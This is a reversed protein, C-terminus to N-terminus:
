DTRKSEVPLKALLTTGEGPSSVVALAGGVLEARERMLQIGFHTTPDVSLPDFGRGDDAVRLRIWGADRSLAVVVNSAASHRLANTIAERALQYTLLQTLASGGVEKLETTIRATTEGELRKVLLRLTETLGGPGVASHSLDQIMDRLASDAAQVAHLLDPVDAELDLLRGSALDNGVVQGMLHVKFLPPLVEDHIGAALALREERREDAVRSSVVSLAREKRAIAESAEGLQKWHMFMQRAILLPIAFAILGWDGATVYVTAMLIALLGFCAYGLLFPIPRSGGYVRWLINRVPVGTLLHTGALMLSMNVLHDSLLAVMAAVLVVPWDDVTLGTQHFVLSAVVVSAAVNSRNFLARLPGIERRFERADVTGSFSLFGALYPPFVFAAALLVPFSIMLEVSDWIPVPLLDAAAVVVLWPLLHALNSSAEPWHRVLESILFAVVLATTTVELIRLRAPESDGPPRRRVDEAGIAGMASM